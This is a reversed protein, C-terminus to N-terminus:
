RVRPNGVAMADTGLAHMVALEAMGHHATYFLSGQFQDGADLLLVARGDADAAARQAKIATALRASGGFCGDSDSGCSMARADVAEHRSHFDNMHLVTLRHAAQQNAAQGWALQTLPLTGLTALLSRRTLTMGLAYCLERQWKCRCGTKAVHAVYQVEATRKEQVRRTRM